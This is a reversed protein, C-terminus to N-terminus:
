KGNRDQIVKAVRTGSSGFIFAHSHLSGDINLREWPYEVLSIKVKEVQQYNKLFHKALLLGFNEPSNVGFKKALVYVTNKLTDTAMVHSNDGCFYDTKIKLQLDITIELEHIEHHLPNIKNRYM